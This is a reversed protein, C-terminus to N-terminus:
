HTGDNLGYTDYGWSLRDRWNVVDDETGYVGDPGAAFIDYKREGHKAAAYQNYTGNSGAGSNYILRHQWPDILGPANGGADKLLKTNFSYYVTLDRRGAGNGSTDYLSHRWPYDAPSTTPDYFISGGSLYYVLCQSSKGLMPHRDPPYRKHVDKYAELAMSVGEITAVVRSVNVQERIKGLTPVLLALLLAIVGMVVLLEILTFGARGVRRTSAAVSIM